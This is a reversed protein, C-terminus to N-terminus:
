LGIREYKTIYTAKTTRKYLNDNNTIFNISLVGIPTPTTVSPTGQLNIPGDMFTTRLFHGNKVGRWGRDVDTRM